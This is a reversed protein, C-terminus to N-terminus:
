NNILAQIRNTIELIQPNGFNSMNGFTVVLISGPAIDGRDTPHPSFSNAVATFTPYLSITEYDDIGRPLPLMYHLEPIRAKIRVTGRTTSDNKLHKLCVANFKIQKSLKDTTYSKQLMERLQDEATKLISIHDNEQDTPKELFSSNSPVSNFLKQPTTM